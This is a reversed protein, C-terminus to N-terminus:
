SDDVTTNVDTAEAYKCLFHNWHVLYLASM